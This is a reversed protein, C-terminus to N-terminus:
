RIVSFPCNSYGEALYGMPDITGLGPGRALNKAYTFSIAADDITFRHHLWYLLGAVLLSFWLSGRVKQRM